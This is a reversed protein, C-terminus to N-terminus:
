PEPEVRKDKWFLMNTRNAMGPPNINARQTQAGIGGGGSATIYLDPTTGGGPKLSVVPASPIGSGISMSRPTDTIPLAGAGTKFNLGYLSAAGGQECPDNGSPPTYTTFYVVGGFVTPDSLMKEGQGALNIYYGYKGPSNYFGEDNTINDMESVTRTSTRDNDMLGFFKEQANPATPDTKDGTGWYVWLNGTNDKAVAASTYIPRIGSSANAEFLRGGTWNATGCASVDGDATRCFKFRWMNSGLDGIYVTDVFGDNDTDVVAPAAPMPSDLNINTGKTYSWLISGDYLDVVFFGKGSDAAGASYAGGGIFGVWRENGNILVRGTMMKSWPAGMYPGTTSSFGATGTGGLIWKFQPNLSSYFISSEVTTVAGASTRNSLDLAYYGCYYHNTETYIGSFGSDCSTSSSWLKDGAGRAEAFVLLTHWDAVQKSAGDSITAPTWVDAVTVPGDVYYQHALTSPDTTHAILKLRQLLNPPIFSWAESGDGTKFAHLQGDNAGALVIRRPNTGTSSRVHNARHTAFANPPGSTDRMDDFFASPTGVTIPTARCVDGLRWNDPNYASEGRFYGVVADRLADTAVDLNAATINATTFDTMAGAKYTRITRATTRDRLLEGADWLQTGVTGDDNIQYKKFHGYWFPDDDRPQFSGEYIFNEDQTRSSQISSQSFSYTAERIINIATKMATALQDADAALFAYGSLATNGPDNASAFFNSTSNASPDYCTGTVAASTECSANADPDYATTSGANATNPNDTGGYYAAWNLTNELYDPMAAGFGVIFVRYGADKLTKAQKVVERRRKYMHQQCEAGSGSCAYTDAGDSIMIVFKQRCAGADDVAKHADLYLKAEQLAAALPTGGSASEGNVCNSSSSGSTVTCSSNSACYILSYKSGIARVYKNCGSSYNYTGQQEESSGSCNYFRMYGLRIGLSTEDSSNITNDDNDDLVDFITRKAITIRSCDTSCGTKSSTCFGGSCGTGSCSTTNAACSSVGYIRSGGAPNWEMSGSLDIAILADPAVSNTFLAEEGAPATAAQVAGAALFGAFLVALFARFIKTKM